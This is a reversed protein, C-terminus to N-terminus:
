KILEYAATEFPGDPFTGRRALDSRADFAGVVARYLEAGYWREHLVIYRVRLRRMADIGADGPVGKLDDMLTYYIPSDNGSSGNVLPRWHFTSQYMLEMDHGPMTPHTPMPLGVVPGEPQSALWQSVPMMAPVAALPVPMTAYELTLGALVLAAVPGAARGRRRLWPELRAVGFGSFVAVFLLVVQAARAPVRLGQFVSVYERLLPYTIGNAGFSLDVAVIAGAAMVVRRRDIPPWVGAVALLLALLGPFLRKEHRGLDDAVRGYLWNGPTAAAYHAPGASWYQVMAESRDGVREKARHYPQSYPILLAAALVGGAAFGAIARPRLARPRAAFLAIGVAGLVVALFLGYYISSLAQLAFLLGAAFAWRFRGEEFARVLALVALPMWGSWLLEFHGYHDFRNPTFAFIVGAVIGAAWSGTLHRVLAWAALGSFLVHRARPSQLRDPAARRGLAAARRDRRVLMADSYAFTDHEPWYINAEFLSRGTGIAHAIWALRWLNFLSDVHTSVSGLQVVQPWTLIVTLAAFVAAAKPV